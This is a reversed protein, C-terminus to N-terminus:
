YRVRLSNDHKQLPGERSVKEAETGSANNQILNKIYNVNNIAYLM